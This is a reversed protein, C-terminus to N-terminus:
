LLLSGFGRFDVELRDNAQGFLDLGLGVFFLLLLGELHTGLQESEVTLALLPLLTTGTVHPQQLVGIVLLGPQHHATVLSELDASVM